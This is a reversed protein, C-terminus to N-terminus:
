AAKTNSVVIAGLNSMLTKIETDSLSKIVVSYGESKTAIHLVRGTLCCYMTAKSAAVSSLTALSISHVNQASMIGCFVSQSQILLVRQNTVVFFVRMHGGTIKIFINQFKMYWAIQTIFTRILNNTGYYAMDGQVAHVVQEGPLLEVQNLADNQDSGSFQPAAQPAQQIQQQPAQQQYQQQPYGQQQQPYGQQQPQGYGQQPYGGPYGQNPPGQYSM